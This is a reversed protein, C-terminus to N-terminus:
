GIYIVDVNLKLKEFILNKVDSVEYEDPIIVTINKIDIEENKNVVSNVDIICGFINNIRLLELIENKILNNASQQQYSIIQNDNLKIEFAKFDYHSNSLPYLFSILIFIKVLTKYFRGNSSVPAIYSLVSSVLFTICVYITWEKIFDM